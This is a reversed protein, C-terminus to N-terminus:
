EQISKMSDEGIFVEILHPLGKTKMKTVNNMSHDLIFVRRLFFFRTLDLETIEMSNGFGSAITINTTFLSASNLESISTIVVSIDDM